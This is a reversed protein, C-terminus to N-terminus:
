YSPLLSQSNFENYTPPNRIPFGGVQDVFYQTKQFVMAEMTALLEKEAVVEIHYWALKNKKAETTGPGLKTLKMRSFSAYPEDVLVQKIQDDHVEKDIETTM